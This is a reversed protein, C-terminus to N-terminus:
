AKPHIGKSHRETTRLFVFPVTGHTQKQRTALSSCPCSFVIEETPPRNTLRSKRTFNKQGKEINSVHKIVLMDNMSHKMRSVTVQILFHVLMTSVMMNKLYRDITIRNVTKLKREGGKEVFCEPMPCAITFLSCQETSIM